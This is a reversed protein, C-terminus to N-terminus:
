HAVVLQAAAQMLQVSRRTDFREGTAGDGRFTIEGVVFPLTLRAFAPDIEPRVLEDEVRCVRGRLMRLDAALGSSESGRVDALEYTWLDFFPRGEM